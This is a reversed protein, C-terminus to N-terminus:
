DALVRVCYHNTLALAGEGGKLPLIKQWFDFRFPSQKERRGINLQYFIRRKSKAFPRLSPVCNLFDRLVPLLLFFQSFIWFLGPYSM